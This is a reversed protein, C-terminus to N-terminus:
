KTLRGVMAQIAKMQPASKTAYGPGTYGWWDWCGQPNFPLTSKNVQPYLVLLRNSDAWANYGAEDIFQRGVSEVSQVCGHLAVHVKCKAGSAAGATAGSKGGSKGPAACAKPVYLYGTDAMATASSAFARQDFPLVQGGPQASPPQLPGYIQTLLAGAQDYGSGGVTCHSIYPAENAGCDNGLSPTIVAHGAPVDNVYKLRSDPVGLLKFLSVTADVAPQRVVSDDTGSFVYVRRKALNAVPDIQKLAAFDKAANAMLYPNPPLGWVQGMCIGTYLMNGAACYYPGGAIVGAGVISASWAVQLQVAMFAGSSLGSVSTQAPDAGYAALPPPKADTGAISVQASLGLAAAMLGSALLNFLTRTPRM